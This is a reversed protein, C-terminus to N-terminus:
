RHIDRLTTGGGPTSGPSPSASESKLDSADALKAM